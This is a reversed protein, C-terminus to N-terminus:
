LLNIWGFPFLKGNRLHILVQNVDLTNVIFGLCREDNVALLITEPDCVKKLVHAAHNFEEPTYYVFGRNEGFVKNYAELIM